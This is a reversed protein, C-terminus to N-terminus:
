QEDTLVSIFGDLSSAILRWVRALHRRGDTATITGSEATRLLSLSDTRMALPFPCYAVVVQLAWAEAAAATRCWHPPSGRGHGLLSGDPAVVVIGFGTTRFARWKGHLLSGDFYWTADQLAESHHPEVLWVFAGDEQKPPAPLRLVLLAREKLWRKRTDSLRGLILDAATPPKAM